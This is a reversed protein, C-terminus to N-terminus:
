DDEGGKRRGYDDGGRGDGLAIQRGGPSAAVQLVVVCTLKFARKGRRQRGGRGEERVEGRAERVGKKVRKRATGGKMGAETRSDREATGEKTVEGSDWRIKTCVVGPIEGKAALLLVVGGEEVVAAMREEGGLVQYAVSSRVACRVRDSGRRCRRVGVSGRCGCGSIGVGLGLVALGGSGDDADVDRRGGGSGLRLLSDRVRHAVVGFSLRRLGGVGGGRGFRGLGRLCRATSAASGTLSEVATESCEEVLVAVRALATAVVRVAVVDNGDVDVAM